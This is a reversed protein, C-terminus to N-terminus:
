GPVLLVRPGAEASATWAASVDSLGFIRFPVQVSGDAILKIYGPIQAQIESVPVSGIGSGSITLKRSWLLAAAVAAETGACRNGARTRSFKLPLWSAMGPNVGPAM